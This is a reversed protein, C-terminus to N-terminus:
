GCFNCNSFLGSRLGNINTRKKDKRSLLYFTGLVLVYIAADEKVFFAFLMMLIMIYTKKKEAAWITMLLFFTLFCNAMDYVAGGSTAPYLAYLLTFGVTMWNSLRYERAILVILIVPLAIMLAQILQVTVPSPFFYFIYFHLIIYQHFIFVLILFFDTERLPQQTVSGIDTEINEYM